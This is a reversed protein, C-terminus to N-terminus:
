VLSGMSYIDEIVSDIRSSVIDLHEEKSSILQNLSINMIDSFKKFSAPLGFISYYDDYKFIPERNTSLEFDILQSPVGFSDAFIIGHLSSSAVFSASSIERAMEAASINPFAVNWGARVASRVIKRGTRSNVVNFHPILLPRRDFRNHIVPYLERALLGPDGVALSEDGRIIQSSFLGRVALIHDTGLRNIRLGKDRVGCGIIKGQFDSQEAIDIVSGVAILEAQNLPAWKVKEGTLEEIVDKNLVDGFNSVSRNLLALYAWAQHYRYASVKADSFNGFPKWWFVNITM